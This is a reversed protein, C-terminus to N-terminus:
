VYEIEQELDAEDWHLYVGVQGSRMPPDHAGLVGPQGCLFCTPEVQENWQVGCPECRVTRIPPRWSVGAATAATAATM